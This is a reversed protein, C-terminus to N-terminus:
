QFQDLSTKSSGGGGGPRMGVALEAVKRKIVSQRGSLQMPFSVPLLELHSLSLKIRKGNRKM